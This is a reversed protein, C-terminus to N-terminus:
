VIFSLRLDTLLVFHQQCSQYFRLIKSSIEEKSSDFQYGVCILSNVHLCICTSM